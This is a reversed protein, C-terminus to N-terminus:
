FCPRSPQWFGSYSAQRPFLVQTRALRWHWETYTIGAADPVERADLGGAGLPSIVLSAASSVVPHSILPPVAGM